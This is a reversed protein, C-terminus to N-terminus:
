MYKHCKISIHYFNLAFVARYLLEEERLSELNFESFLPLVFIFFHWRTILQALVWMPTRLVSTSTEVEGWSKFGLKTMREGGFPILFSSSSLAPLAGLLAWVQIHSWKTYM